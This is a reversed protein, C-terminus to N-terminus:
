SAGREAEPAKERKGVSDYVDPDSRTSVRLGRFGIGVWNSRRNKTKRSAEGKGM